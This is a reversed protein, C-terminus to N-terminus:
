SIRAKEHLLLEQTKDVPQPKSFLYGQVEHCEQSRLFDLQKQTEVGEAIVRLNLKESLVMVASIIASDVQSEPVEQLFTRDIKLTSLPFQRLNKLTSHGTGFDDIAISIGMEMLQELTKQTFAVDDLVTSETMELELLDAPFDTEALVEAVAAVLGAQKFQIPSLNVGLKVPPLGLQQWRRAQKCATKLVWLGIPVILGTEEALPIFQGPSVMGMQPNNWRVLAELGTIQNTRVDVQPQYYVVFEERELARRLLSEMRLRNFAASGMKATFFQYNNRGVQKARHMATDGNKLLSESDRGDEPYVAVGISVSLFYDYDKYVWPEEMAQVLQEAQKVIADIGETEPCLLTFKDASQRALTCQSDVVNMIRRALEKLLLDGAQYGLSDNILKFNDIDIFMVALQERKSMAHTIALDLTEQFLTWNPLGTLSDYYLHRYIAKEASRQQTLDKVIMVWQQGASDLISVEMPIEREDAALGTLEGRWQGQKRFSDMIQGDILEITDLSFLVRWSRGVLDGSRRYGFIQLFSQNIYVFEGDENLIAGGDMSVELLSSLHEPAEVRDGEAIETITGVFFVELNDSKATTLNLQVRRKRGQNDRTEILGQFPQQEKTIRQLKDDLALKSILTQAMQNSYILSGQEDFIILGSTATDWLSVIQELSLSNKENGARKIM